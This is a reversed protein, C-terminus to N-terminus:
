SFSLICYFNLLSKRLTHSAKEGEAHDQRVRLFCDLLTQRWWVIESYLFSRVNAADGRRDENGHLRCLFELFNSSSSEASLNIMICANKILRCRSFPFISEGMGAAIVPLALDYTYLIYSMLLFDMYSRHSPLLVVPHEQITQQLQSRILTLWTEENQTERIPRSVRQIGEENVCISRFLTKFIKSLMFAFFRITSLQLRHAM